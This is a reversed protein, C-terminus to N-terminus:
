VKAHKLMTGVWKKSLGSVLLGFYWFSVRLLAMQTPRTGRQKAGKAAPESLGTMSAMRHEAMTAWEWMPNWYAERWDRIGGGSRCRM